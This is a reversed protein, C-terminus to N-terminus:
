YIRHNSSGVDIRVLRNEAWASENADYRRNIRRTAAEIAEPDEVVTGECGFGRAVAAYDVSPEFDTSQDVGENSLMSAKSSGLSQNDFVVVTLPLDERAATELDAFLDVDSAGAAM